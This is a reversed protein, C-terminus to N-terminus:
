FSSPASSNAPSLIHMVNNDSTEAHVTNRVIVGVDCLMAYKISCYELELSYEPDPGTM